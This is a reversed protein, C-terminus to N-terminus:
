NRTFFLDARFAVATPATTFAGFAISIEFYDTDTFPVGAGSNIAAQQIFEAYNRADFKFTNSLQYVNTNNKRLSVTSSHNSALTGGNYETLGVAVLTGNVRPYMRNRDVTGEANSLGFYHTVSASPNYPYNTNTPFMILNSALQLKLQGTSDFRSFGEGENYVLTEGASLTCTFLQRETGSIDLKITVTQASAGRNRISLWKIVHVIASSAPAAVITSTGATATNNAAMKPAANGGGTVPTAMEVYAVAWDTSLSSGIELELTHTTASLYM